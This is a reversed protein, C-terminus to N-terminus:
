AARPNVTPSPLHFSQPPLPKTPMASIFSAGLIAGVPVGISEPIVFTPLSMLTSLVEICSASLKVPYM